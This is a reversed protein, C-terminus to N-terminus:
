ADELPLARNEARSRALDRLFQEAVADSMHVTLGAVPQEQDNGHQLYGASRGSFEAARIRSPAGQTADLALDAIAANIEIWAERNTVTCLAARIGADSMGVARRRAVALRIGERAANQANEARKLGGKRGEKSAISKDSFLPRKDVGSSVVEVANEAINIPTNPDENDM